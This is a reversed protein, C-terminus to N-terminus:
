SQVGGHGGCAGSRNTGTFSAGDKCTATIIGTSQAEIRGAGGPDLARRHWSRAQAPAAFTRHLVARGLFAPDFSAAMGIAPTTPVPLGSAPEPPSVTAPPARTAESAASRAPPAEAKSLAATATSVAAETAPSALGR